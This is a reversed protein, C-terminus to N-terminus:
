KQEYGAIGREFGEIQEWWIGIKEPEIEEDKLKQEYCTLMDVGEVFKEVMIRPLYEYIFEVPIIYEGDEPIIGKNVMKEAIMHMMCYFNSVTFLVWRKQYETHPHYKLIEDPDADFMSLLINCLPSEEIKFPKNPMISYVDREHISSYFCRLKYYCHVLKTLLRDQSMYKIENEM